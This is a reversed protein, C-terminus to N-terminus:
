HNKGSIDVYLIPEAETLSSPHTWGLDLCEPLLAVQAGNAAAEAILEVAHNLNRKKDGGEVHMQILALKFPTISM